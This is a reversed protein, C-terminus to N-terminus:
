NMSMGGNVHIHPVSLLATTRSQPQPPRHRNSLPWAIVMSSMSMYREALSSMSLCASSSATMAMLRASMGGLSRMEAEASGAQRAFELAKEHAPPDGVGIM